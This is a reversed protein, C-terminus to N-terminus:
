GVAACLAAELVDLGEHLQEEPIMLPMLLRICNSYLGAKILILGRQAAEHVVRATADKAPRKTARDDVLEMALM